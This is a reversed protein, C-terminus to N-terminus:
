VVAVTEKARHTVLRIHKCRRRRVLCRYFFQPCNCQWRRMGRKRIFQVTYETGPNSDSAVYYTRIGATHHEARRLTM